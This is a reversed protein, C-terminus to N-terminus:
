GAGGPQDVLSSVTKFIEGNQLFEDQDSYSLCMSPYMIVFATRLTKLCRVEHRGIM